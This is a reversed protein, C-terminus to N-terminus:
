AYESSFPRKNMSVEALVAIFTLSSNRAMPINEKEMSDSVSIDTKAMTKCMFNRHFM